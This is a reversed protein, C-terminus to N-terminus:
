RPAAAVYKVDTTSQAISSQQHASWCVLSSELFHCTSSTSKRDIGSCVFDADFFGILGLLSSDYYWIM